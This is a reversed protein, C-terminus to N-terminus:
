HMSKDTCDQRIKSDVGEYDSDGVRVAVGQQLTKYVHFQERSGGLEEYTVPESRRGKGNVQDGEMESAPAINTLALNAYEQTREQKPLSDPATEKQKWETRTKRIVIVVVIVILTVGTISAVSWGVAAGINTCSEMQVVCDTPSFVVTSNLLVPKAYGVANVALLRVSYSGSRVNTINAIYAKDYLYSNEEYEYVYTKNSWNNQRDDALQIVFIQETGGDFGKIWFFLATNEIVSLLRFEMPQDPVSAVIVTKRTEPIVNQFVTHSQCILSSGNDNRSATFHLTSTVSVLGGDESAYTVVSNNSSFTKLGLRWTM